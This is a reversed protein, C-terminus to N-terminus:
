PLGPAGFPEIKPVKKKFIGSKQAGGILSKGIGLGASIQGARGEALASSARLDLLEASAGFNLGQTRFGLAEREANNRITLEDLKGSQATDKTLDLASGTDVTQGLGAQAVRQRAIFQKTALARDAVSAEGRATADDAARNAIEQNRRAVSAQFAAAQATAEAQRKASQAQFLGGVVQFGTSVVAITVPDCM